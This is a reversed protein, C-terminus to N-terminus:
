RVNGSTPESTYWMGKKRLLGQKSAFESRCCMIRSPAKSQGSSCAFSRMKKSLTLSNLTRRSYMSLLIVPAFVREEVPDRVEAVDGVEVLFPVERVEDFQDAGEKPVLQHQRRRLPLHRQCHGDEEVKVASAVLEVRYEM